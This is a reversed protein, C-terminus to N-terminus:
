IIDEGGIREFRNADGLRWRVARILEKCQDKNLRSIHAEGPGLNLTQGLWVYADERNLEGKYDRAWLRDFWDHAEKRLQRTEADAPFGFPEATRRHCNHSGKCSTERWQSCGYFIGYKSDKLILPSGCDPCVLDRRQNPFEDDLEEKTRLRTAMLPGTRVPPPGDSFGFSSDELEGELECIDVPASYM